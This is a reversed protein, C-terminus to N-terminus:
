SITPLANNVAAALHLQTLIVTEDKPMIEVVYTKSESLWFTQRSLKVQM